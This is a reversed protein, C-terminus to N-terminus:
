FPLDDDAAASQLDFMHRDTITSYQLPTAYRPKRTVLRGPIVTVNPIKLYRRECAGQGKVWEIAAVKVQLAARRKATQAQLFELPFVIPIEVAGAEEEM